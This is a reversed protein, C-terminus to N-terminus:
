ILVYLGEIPLCHSSPVAFIFHYINIFIDNQVKCISAKTTTFHYQSLSLTFKLRM